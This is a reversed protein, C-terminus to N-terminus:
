KTFQAGSRSRSAGPSCYGSRVKQEAERERGFFAGNSPTHTHTHFMQVSTLSRNSTTNAPPHLACHFSCGVFSDVQAPLLTQDVRHVQLKLGNQIGTMARPWAM